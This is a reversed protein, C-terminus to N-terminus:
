LPNQNVYGRTPSGSSYPPMGVAPAYQQSPYNLRPRLPSSERDDVRVTRTEQQHLEKGRVLSVSFKDGHGSMGGRELHLTVTSGVPGKVFDKVRSLPKGSVSFSDVGIVFDGEQIMGCAAAASGRVLMHVKFREMNPDDDLILGVGANGAFRQSNEVVVVKEQPPPQNRLWHVEDRLRLIEEELENVRGAAARRGIDAEYAAQRMGGGSEEMSRLQEELRERTERERRYERELNFYKTKESDVVAELQDRVTAHDRELASMERRHREHLQAIENRLRHEVERPDESKERHLTVHVLGGYGRRRFALKVKTGPPGLILQRVVNLPEGEVTHGDVQVIIDGVKIQGDREAPGGRVFTMVAISRNMDLGEVFILGVGARDPSGAHLTPDDVVKPRTM